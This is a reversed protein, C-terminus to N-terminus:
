RTSDVEEAKRVYVDRMRASRHGGHHNKHDTIGKAKIDHFTFWTRIAAQRDKEAREPDMAKEMARVFASRVASYGVKDGQRGHVLYRSFSHGHLARAAKVADQLRPSWRTIESDSGKKRRLHVGEAGVDRRELALVEGVRARLLYALEMCVALLDSSCHMLRDYEWDEIYRDSGGTDELRVSKAPNAQCHGYEIGWSFVARIFQIERVASVPATESRSDRYRSFMPPSLSRLPADGLVRGGSTPHNIMTQAHFRYGDQTSAAKKAFQASDLYKRILWGLTRGTTKTIQRTYASFIDRQSANAHLARGEDDVLTVVKGFKGGGLYERWVIRNRDPKRQVYHPLAADRRRSRNRGM